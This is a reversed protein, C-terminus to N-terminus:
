TEVCRGMDLIDIKSPSHTLVAMFGSPSRASSIPVGDLVPYKNKLMLKKDNSYFFEKIENTCGDTVYILSGSNEVDLVDVDEICNMHKDFHCLNMQNGEENVSFLAAADLGDVLVNVNPAVSLSSHVSTIVGDLNIVRMLRLIKDYVRIQNTPRETVYISDQDCSISSPSFDADRITIAEKMALQTNNHKRYITYKAIKNQDPFVIFLSRSNIACADFPVHNYFHKTYALSLQMDPSKLGYINFLSKTSSILGVTQEDLLFLRDATLGHIFDLPLSDVVCNKKGVVAAAESDDVDILGCTDISQEFLKERASKLESYKHNVLELLSELNSSSSDVNFANSNFKNEFSFMDPNFPLCSTGGVLIFIFLKTLEM